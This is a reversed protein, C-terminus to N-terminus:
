RSSTAAMSRSQGGLSLMLPRSTVIGLLVKGRVASRRRNRRGNAGAGCGMRLFERGNFAQRIGARPVRLLILFELLLLVLYDCLLILIALIELLLLFAVM